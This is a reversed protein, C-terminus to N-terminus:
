FKCPGSSPHSPCAFAALKGAGRTNLRIDVARQPALAFRCHARYETHWSTIYFRAESITCPGTPSSASLIRPSDTSHILFFSGAVTDRNVIHVVRATPSLAKITVAIRSLRKSTGASSRGPGGNGGLTDTVFRYGVPQVAREVGSGYPHAAAYREFVDPASAPRGNGGLTDTVIRDGELAPAHGNGGFTDTVIRYGVAAPATGNGGLTDATLRYAPWTKAGAVAPIALAAVLAAFAIAKTDIGNM